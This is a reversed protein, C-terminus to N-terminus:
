RFRGVGAWTPTGVGPGRRKACNAFTSGTSTCTHLTGDHGYFWFVDDRGDHNYDGVGAWTPANIGSVSGVTTFGAGAFTHITSGQHWAIEDRWGDGNFDGVGAWTPTGVGPGRRKACNAFTSGTSTCTHLTGDHGYYWVVDDRGDRNFDGVGAWTPANIGSVSGVTTFGAGAFTHITSGQHWAIESGPGITEVVNRYRFPQYNGLRYGTASWARHTTAPPTQEYILFDGGVGGTWRDFIVVHSGTHPDAPNHFLLMDGPRLEHHAIPVGITHLDGTWYNRNTQWAMSVYGSCDTRYGDRFAHQSYPVRANAWTKARAIIEARTVAPGPDAAVAPGSQGPPQVAQQQATV